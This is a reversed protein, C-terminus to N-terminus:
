NWERWKGNPFNNVGLHLSQGLNRGRHMVNALAFICHMKLLASGSVVHQLKCVWKVAPFLATEKKASDNAVKGAELTPNFIQALESPYFVIECCIKSKPM